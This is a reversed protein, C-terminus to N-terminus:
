RDLHFLKDADIVNFSYCFGWSTIIELVAVGFENAFDMANDFKGFPEVWEGTHWTRKLAKIYDVVDIADISINFNTLFDDKAVLGVAQMYKLEKESLDWITINKSLIATRLDDYNFEDNYTNTLPCLTVAVFPIKISLEFRCGSCANM